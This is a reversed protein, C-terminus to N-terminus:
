LRELQTEELRLFLHCSSLFTIDHTCYVVSDNVTVVVCCLLFFFQLIPWLPLWFFGIYTQRYVQESFQVELSLLASACLYDKCTSLSISHYCLMLAVMRYSQFIQVFSYIMCGVESPICLCLRHLLGEGVTIYKYVYQFVPTFTVIHALLVTTSKTIGSFLHNYIQFFDQRLVFTGVQLVLNNLNLIKLGYTSVFSVKHSLRM